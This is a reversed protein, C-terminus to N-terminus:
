DDRKRLMVEVKHGDVDKLDRLLARFNWYRLGQVNICAFIHQNFYWRISYHSPIAFYEDYDCRTYFENIEKANFTIREPDENTFCIGDLCSDGFRDKYISNKYQKECSDNDSEFIIIPSDNQTIKPFYLIISKLKFRFESNNDITWLGLHADDLIRIKTNGSCCYDYMDMGFRLDSNSIIKIFKKAKSIDTIRTVEDEGISLGISDIASIFIETAAKKLEMGNAALYKLCSAYNNSLESYGTITNYNSGIAKFFLIDLDNLLAQFLSIISVDDFNIEAHTLANRVLNLKKLNEILSQQMDFDCMKEVRSLAEEYTITHISTSDCFDFISGSQCRQKKRYADLYAADIKSIILFESKEHLIYKLLLEVGHHTFLVARKLLFYDSKNPKRDVINKEFELFSQAGFQLSDMGNELLTIKM